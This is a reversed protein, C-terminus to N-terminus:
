WGLDPYLKASILNLLSLSDLGLIVVFCLLLFVLHLIEARGGESFEIESPHTKVKSYDIVCRIVHTFDEFSM